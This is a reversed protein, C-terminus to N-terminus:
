FLMMYKNHHASPKAIILDPIAKREIGINFLKMVIYLNWSM